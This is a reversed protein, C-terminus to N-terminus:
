NVRTWLKIDAQGSCQIPYTHRGTSVRNWDTIFSNFAHGTREHEISPISEIVIKKKNHDYFSKYNVNEVEMFELFQQFNNFTSSSIYSRQYKDKPLINYYFHIFSSRREEDTLTEEM